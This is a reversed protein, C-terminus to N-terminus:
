WLREEDSIEQQIPVRDAELFSDASASSDVIQRPQIIQADEANTNNLKRMKAENLRDALINALLNVGDNEDGVVKYHRALIALAAGKDARKIKRIEVEGETGGRLIEVSIETITAAVDDPLDQIPIMRGNSDFLDSGSAFAIRALEAKVTEATVGVHAFQEANLEVVRERIRDKRLLQSARGLASYGAKRAAEVARGTACYYQAFAEEQPNLLASM